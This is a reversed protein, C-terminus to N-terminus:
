DRAVAGAKMNRSPPAGVTVNNQPVYQVVGTEGGCIYGTQLDIMETIGIEGTDGEGEGQNIGISFNAAVKDGRNGPVPTMPGDDEIHRPGEQNVNYRALENKGGVTGYTGGQGSFPSVSKVPFDKGEVRYPDKQYDSQGVLKNKAALDDSSQGHGPTIKGKKGGHPGANVDEEPKYGSASKYVPSKPDISSGKGAVAPKFPTIM